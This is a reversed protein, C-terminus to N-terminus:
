EFLALEDNSIQSSIRNRNKSHQQRLFSAHFNVGSTTCTSNIKCQFGDSLVSQKWGEWIEPRGPRTLPHQSVCVYDKHFPTFGFNRAVALWQSLHDLYSGPQLHKQPYKEVLLPNHQQTIPQTSQIRKITPSFIDTHEPISRKNATPLLNVSRSYVRVRTHDCLETEIISRALCPRYCTNTKAMEAFNKWILSFPTAPTQPCMAHVDHAECQM